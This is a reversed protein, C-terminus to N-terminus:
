QANIGHRAVSHRGGGQRKADYLARDAAEVLARENELSKDESSAVGVSLSVNRAEGNWSARAKMLAASAREAVFVARDAPTHPLLLAFEDGGYRACVDVERIGHSLIHAINRLTEDGAQHGATDNVQKFRDVDFLLLSLAHGYRRASAWERHLVDEFRRRNFVGTLADTMALHETKTLMGELEANRQRLEIRAARSRLAAYMRAELEEPEYPKPIYDDAGVHLGEVRQKVESKATLMIVVVDRTAEGLRLWRCVSYGDMDDLMVDLIVVEPPDSKIVRLADFGGTVANVEYGRSELTKTLAERQQKSDEVVLVKAKV